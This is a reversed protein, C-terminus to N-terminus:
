GVALRGQRPGASNWDIYNLLGLASTLTDNESALETATEALLPDRRAVAFRLACLRPDGARIGLFTKVLVAGSPSGLMTRAWRRSSRSAPMSRELADDLMTAVRTYATSL